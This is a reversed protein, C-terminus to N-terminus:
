IKVLSFAGYIAFVFGPENASRIINLAGSAAVRTRVFGAQTTNLVVDKLISM